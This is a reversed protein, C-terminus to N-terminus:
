HNHMRHYQLAAVTMLFTIVFLILLFDDIYGLIGVIHEPILDFPLLIYVIIIFVWRAIQLNRLFFILFNM